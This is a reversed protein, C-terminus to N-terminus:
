KHFYCFCENQCRAEVGSFPIVSMTCLSFTLLRGGGPCYRVSYGAESIKTVTDSQNSLANSFDFWNLNPALLFESNGEKKNKNKSLFEPLEPSSKQDCPLM